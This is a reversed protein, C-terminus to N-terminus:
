SHRLVLTVAKGVGLALRVRDLLKLKTAPVTAAAVSPAIGKLKKVVQELTDREAETLRVIHIKRM